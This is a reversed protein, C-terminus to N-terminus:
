VGDMLVINKMSVDLWSVEQVVGLEAFSDKYVKTQRFYTDVKLQKVVSNRM